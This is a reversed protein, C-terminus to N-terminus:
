SSGNVTRRLRWADALVSPDHARYSRRAVRLGRAECPLEVIQFGARELRVVLETDYLHGRLQCADVHPRARDLAVAKMGRPVRARLGSLAHILATVSATAARRLLPLADVSDPDRTPAIVAATGREVRLTRVAAAAFEGDYLGCGFVIACWGRASLLGVDLAAGYDAGRRTLMRVEPMQAALRSGVALTDDSSGNEVVIIEFPEGCRVGIAHVDAVATALTSAENHAPLVFSLSTMTAVTYGVSRRLCGV